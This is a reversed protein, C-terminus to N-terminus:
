LNSEKSLCTDVVEPHKYVSRMNRVKRHIPNSSAGNFGIHFGQQLGQLIYVVFDDDPHSEVLTAWAM